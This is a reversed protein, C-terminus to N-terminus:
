SSCTSPARCCTRKRIRWENGGQSQGLYRSRRPLPLPPIGLSDLSRRMRPTERRPSRGPAGPCPNRTGPEGSGPEDEALAAARLDASDRSGSGVRCAGTTRPPAPGPQSVGAADTRVSSKRAEAPRFIDCGRNEGDQAGAETNRVNGPRDCGPGKSLPAAVFNRCPLPFVRCRSTKMKRIFGQDRDSLAQSRRRAAEQDGSIRLERCWSSCHSAFPLFHQLREASHSMKLLYRLLIGFFHQPFPLLRLM